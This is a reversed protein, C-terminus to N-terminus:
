VSRLHGRATERLTLVTGLSIAATVMLYIAPSLDNHTRNIMYTAVLPATGGLLGVCLNYAFSLASCRVRPPLAEAMTVPVVGGFLGVLIAFGIQGALISVPNSEHMLWLLPGSLLLGGAASALLVPKRGVRDSLHGGIPIILLLVIMSITNIDFAKVAAIGVFEELYTVSFVFSLYFGVALFANLGALRAITRWEARFLKPISVSHDPMAARKAAQPEPLHRRIVFGALGVLLGGLFPLRWGWSNVDDQTLLASIASGVASGLLIGLTAGFPSWSAVLGRREPSASEALYVVSTTYEGGVSLGQIMRLAVLLVPATVGLYAHGPLVGILFTPIAMAAVSIILARNRGYRDGIYGFVLGGLPRMLFGAAFVGFAAILSASADEAPFFNKGIASAFYGYVAFDYWELVNGIIGAYIPKWGVRSEPRPLAIAIVNSSSTSM